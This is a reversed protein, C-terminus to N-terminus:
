MPSIWGPGPPYGTMRRQFGSLTLAPVYMRRSARVCPAIRLRSMLLPVEAVITSVAISANSITSHLLTAIVYGPLPPHSIIESGSSTPPSVRFINRNGYPMEEANSYRPDYMMLSVSSCPLPYQIFSCRVVMSPHARPTSVTVNFRPQFIIPDSEEGNGADAMRAIGSEIM